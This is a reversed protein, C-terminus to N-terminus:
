RQQLEASIAALLEVTSQIDETNFVDFDPSEKLRRM